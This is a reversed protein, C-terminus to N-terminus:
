IYNFFLGALETVTVPQNEKTFLVTSFCYRPEAYNVVNHPIGVQVISPCGVPQSHLLEVSDNSYLISKSKIPTTLQHPKYHKNPRYWNMSSGSGGYVWNIKAFNAPGDDAHIPIKKFSDTFFIEIYKIRLNLSDILELFDNNVYSMDLKSHWHKISNFDYDKKLLDFNFNLDICYHNM